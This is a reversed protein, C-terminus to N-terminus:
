ELLIKQREVFSKSYHSDKSLSIRKILIFAILYFFGISVFIMTIVTPNEENPGSLIVGVFMSDFSPGMSRVFSALGYYSGSIKAMSEDMNITNTINNDAAEHVLSAMIPISFLPYSYMSGLVTSWSIIYLVMKFAYSLNSILFLVDMVSTIVALLICIAYSNIIHNKKMIKKWIFFWIFKGFISIFIYVFFESSKFGMLYTQFPFVLLGVIKGSIGIFFGALMLKVFNKDMLPIKMNSFADSIKTKQLHNGDHFSEDVSLFVLIVCISGFIIFITAILPIYFLILEGSPEWWKVSTPDSLLSQVILPLLLAFVSATISFASRISAVKERNELTQSQEPLM